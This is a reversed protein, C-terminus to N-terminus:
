CADHTVRSHMFNHGHHENEGEEAQSPAAENICSMGPRKIIGESYLASHLPSSAANVNVETQWASFNLVPLASQALVSLAALHSFLFILHFLACNCGTTFLVFSALALCSRTTVTSVSFLSFLLLITLVSASHPSITPRETWCAEAKRRESSDFAKHPKLM